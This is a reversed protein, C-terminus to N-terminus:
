AVRPDDRYLKCPALQDEVGLDDLQLLFDGSAGLSVRQLGLQRRGVAIQWSQNGHIDLMSPQLETFWDRVPDYLTPKPIACVVSSGFYAAAAKGNRVLLIGNTPEVARLRNVIVEYSTRFLAKMAQLFSINVRDSAGFAHRYQRRFLNTPVLLREAAKNCINELELPNSIARTPAPVAGSTKYFFTHAIEHAFTFRERTSWLNRPEPEEINLDRTDLDRLYVEFGGAVPVLAGRPVMLRTGVHLVGRYRAIAHLDVPPSVCGISLYLSDAWASARHAQGQTM